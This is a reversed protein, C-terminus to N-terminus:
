PDSDVAHRSYVLLLADCSAFGTMIAHNWDSGPPIDRPAVWCVVGASELSSVIATAAGADRSSHSVFIRSKSKGHAYGGGDREAAPASTPTAGGPEKGM